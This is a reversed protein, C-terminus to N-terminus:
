KLRQKGTRKSTIAGSIPRAGKEDFSLFWTVYHMAEEASEGIAIGEVNSKSPNQDFLQQICEVIKYGANVTGIIQKPAIRESV